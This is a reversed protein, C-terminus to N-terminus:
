LGAASIMAFLIQTNTQGQQLSTLEGASRDEVDLDTRVPTDDDVGPGDPPKQKHYKDLQAATCDPDCDPFVITQAAVGADRAQGYNWSSTGGNGIPVSSAANRVSFAAEFQGQVAHCAGHEKEWRQGSACICPAMEEKYGDFIVKDAVGRGGIDTFCHVEVLHHPTKKEGDDGECCGYAMPALVCKMAEKCPDKCMERQAGAVNVEGKRKGKTIVNKQFGERCSTEAKERTSKCPDTSSGTAMADTYVWPPSNGPMSAHNHTAMDLHRVVNEGEFKVDMSWMTFYIKGTNTATIVGKMPASGAEDGSSKKFYSQDKLMAEQNSVMVTSSGDSCDSAMGTNPYPIPVGPPTAPTQPPTMCVDPMACISKGDAAKCAVEMNNAYVQNSMLVGSLQTDDRHTCGCRHGRPV